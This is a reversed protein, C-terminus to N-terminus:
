INSCNKKETALKRIKKLFILDPKQNRSFEMVIVIRHNKVIKKLADFNKYKFPFFANKLNEPM